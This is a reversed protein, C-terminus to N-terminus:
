FKISTKKQTAETLAAQVLESIPQSAEYSKLLYKYM